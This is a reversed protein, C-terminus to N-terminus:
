MLFQSGHQDSGNNVMSVTGKNKHKIRPVKEAEFFRAQDSYLQCFIFEGGSGSGMPDGTQIIFDRQVNYILCYNYYKVKCLKLFNLCAHPREQMYLNVGHDGAARHWQQGK